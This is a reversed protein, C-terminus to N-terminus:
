VVVVVWGQGMASHGGVNRALLSSAVNGKTELLSELGGGDGLLGVGLGVLPYTSM